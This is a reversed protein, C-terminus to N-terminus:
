EKLSAFQLFSCPENRAVSNIEHSFNLKSAWTMDCPQRVRLGAHRLAPAGTRSPRCQSQRVLCAPRGAPNESLLNLSVTDTHSPHCASAEGQWSSCCKRAASTGRQGVQGESPDRRDGWRGSGRPCGTLLPKCEVLTHASRDISYFPFFHVNMIGFVLCNKSIYVSSMKFGLAFMVYNM